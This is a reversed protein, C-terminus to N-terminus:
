YTILMEKFPVVVHPIIPEHIWNYEHKAGNARSAGVEDVTRM